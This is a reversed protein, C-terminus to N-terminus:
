MINVETLREADAFSNSHSKTQLKQLEAQLSDIKNQMQLNYMQRNNYANNQTGDGSILKIFIFVM